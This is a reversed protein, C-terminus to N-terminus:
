VWFLSTLKLEKLKDIRTTAKVIKHEKVVLLILLYSNVVLELVKRRFKLRLLPMVEVQPIMQKQQMLQESLIVKSLWNLFIIMM